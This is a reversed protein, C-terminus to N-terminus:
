LNFFNKINEKAQSIKYVDNLRRDLFDITDQFNESEDTSFYLLTSSYVAGLLMRKTYYNFDTSKDQGAEHWILDVTNWLIKTSFVCNTPMALFALSKQLLTKHQNLIELRSIICLRIRQHAKLNDHTAARYKEIMKSDIDQIYYEFLEYLGGPFIIAAAGNPINLSSTIDQLLSYSWGDFPVIQMAAELIKKRISEQM